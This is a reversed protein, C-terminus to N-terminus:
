VDLGVQRDLVPFQVPTVPRLDDQWTVCGGDRVKVGVAVGPVLDRQSGFQDGAGSRELSLCRPVPTLRMVEVVPDSSLGTLVEIGDKSRGPVATQSQVISYASASAAFGGKTAM